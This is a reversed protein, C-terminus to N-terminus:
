DFHDALVDVVRRGADIPSTDTREIAIASGLLAAGGAALWASLPIGAATSLAEHVTITAVIATGILLPAALRRSGGAVIAVLAVAGAFLAHLASGGHLREVIGSAGLLAVAPGYAVWSGPRDSEARGARLRVGVVLLYAAAPLVYWESAQVHRTALESWAGVTAVLAGAHGLEPSGVFLAVGIALLGVIVLAGAFTAASGSALALGVVVNAVGCAAFPTAYKRDVLAAFGFWMAAAACLAVGSTAYSLDALHALVVEAQVVPVALAAALAFRRTRLTDVVGLVILTVAPALPDAGPRGFMSGVALFAVARLVDAGGRDTLDLITATVFCIAVWWCAVVPAAVVETAAGAGVAVCVLAVLTAGANENAAGKARVPVYASLVAAASAVLLASAGEGVAMVVAYIAVAWATPYLASSPPLVLTATTGLTLATVAVLIPSATALAVATVGASAVLACQVWTSRARGSTRALSVAWGLAVLAMAVAGLLDRELGTVFEGDAFLVVAPVWLALAITPVGAVVEAARALLRSPQAWFRDARFVFAGLEVLLFLSPLTLTNGARSVDMASWAAIGQAALVAVAFLLLGQEDRRQATVAITTAALLGTVVAVFPNVTLLGLAEVVGHGLGGDHVALTVIPTLGAITAWVAGHVEKRRALVLAGGASALLLPAPVATVAAIGGASAVVAASAAAGLVVSRARRALVAFAVASTVSAHLLMEQWSAELRVDVAAVNVPLLLAGLHFLANGTAPLTRRLRDGGVIAGGTAAGLAALKVADPIHDWNAAVFVVAAAFLLFAGTAAVWTAGTRRGARDTSATTENMGPDDPVPRGAFM